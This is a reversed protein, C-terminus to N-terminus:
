VAEREESVVPEVDGCEYFTNLNRFLVKREKFPLPFFPSINNNGGDVNGDTGIM